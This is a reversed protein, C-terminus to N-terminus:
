PLVLYYRPFSSLFLVVETLLESVTKVTITYKVGFLLVTEKGALHKMREEKGREKRAKEGESKLRINEKIQTM